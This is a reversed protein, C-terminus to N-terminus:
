IGSGQEVISLQYHSIKTNLLYKYKKINPIFLCPIDTFHVHNNHPILSTANQYYSWKTTSMYCVLLKNRPLMM